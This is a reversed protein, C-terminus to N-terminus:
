YGFDAAYGVEIHWDGAYGPRWGGSGDAALGPVWWTGWEGRDGGGNVYTPDCWETATDPNGGDCPVWGGSDASAPGSVALAGGVAIAGSVGALVLRRTMTRAFM